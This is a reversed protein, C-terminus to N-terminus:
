SHVETACLINFPSVRSYDMANASPAMFPPELAEAREVFDGAKTRAKISEIATQTLIRTCKADSKRWHKNLKFRESTFTISQFGQGLAHSQAASRALPHMLKMPAKPTEMM